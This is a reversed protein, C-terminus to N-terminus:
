ASMKKLLAEARQRAIMYVGNPAQKSSGNELANAYPLNNSIWITLRRQLNAIAAVTEQASVMKQKAISTYASTPTGKGSKKRATKQKDMDQAVSEDPAGVSLTHSARFRGQDVPSMRQIDVLASLSVTRVIELKKAQAAKIQELIEAHAADVNHTIRATHM